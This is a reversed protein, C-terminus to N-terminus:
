KYNENKEWNKEIIIIQLKGNKEIQEIIIIKLKLKENKGNKLIIILKWIKM